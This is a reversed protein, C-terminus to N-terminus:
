RCHTLAFRLGSLEAELKALDIAVDWSGHRDQESVRDAQYRLLNERIAELSAIRAEVETM